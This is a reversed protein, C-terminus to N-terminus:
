EQALEQALLTQQAQEVMFADAVNIAALLTASCILFMKFLPTM